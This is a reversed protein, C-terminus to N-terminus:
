MFYDARKFGGFTDYMKRQVGYDLFAAMAAGTPRGVIPSVVSPALFAPIFLLLFPPCSFSFLATQVM